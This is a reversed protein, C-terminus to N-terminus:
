HRHLELRQQHPVAIELNEHEDLLPILHPSLPDAVLTQPTQWPGSRVSPVKQTDLGTAGHLCHSMTWNCIM